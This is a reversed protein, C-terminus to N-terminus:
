EVPELPGNADPQAYVEINRAVRGAVQRATMAGRIVGVWQEPPQEEQDGPTEAVVTWPRRALWRAPFFMVVLVIIAILWGPVAVAPPTWVVLTVALIVLVGGMMLGPRPGGSVDHEFEDGGLPNSWEMTSRINWMRGDSGRVVRNM